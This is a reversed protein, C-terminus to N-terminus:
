TWYTVDYVGLHDHHVQTWCDIGVQIKIGVGTSLDCMAGSDPFTIDRLTPNPDGENAIILDTLTQNTMADINTPNECQQNAEKEWRSRYGPTCSHLVENAMNDVVVLGQIAYTYRGTLDHLQLINEENLPIM